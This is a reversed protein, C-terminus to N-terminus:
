LLNVCHIDLFSALVRSVKDNEVTMEKNKIMEATLILAAVALNPKEDAKDASLGTYDLVYQRAAELYDPVLNFDPDEDGIVAHAAAQQPTIESLKM